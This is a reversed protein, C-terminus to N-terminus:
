GWLDKNKLPGNEELAIEIQKVIQLMEVTTM